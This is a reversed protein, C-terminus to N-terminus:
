IKSFSRESLQNNMLSKRMPPIPIKNRVPSNKNTLPVPRKPALPPLTAQHEKLPSRAIPTQLSAKLNQVSQEYLDLVIGKKGPMHFSRKVPSQQTSRMNM